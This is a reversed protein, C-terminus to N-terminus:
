SGHFTAFASVPERPTVVDDLPHDHDAHGLALGCVVIEDDAIPLHRRLVRHFDLFSAQACTDLGAERAALMLGQLFQGADVLAGVLPHASVTLIMGVPAGFFAYNRRHHRDRGDADDHEVGLTRRYLRDGFEARRSRFPEVWADPAPQYPYGPQRDRRGADLAAWLDETLRRKADGTVVHVRWPQVNSNSAARSALALLEEIVERPVPTPRFARVSRRTRLADSVSAATRQAVTM